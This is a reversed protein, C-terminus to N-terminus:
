SQFTLFIRHNETPKQLEEFVWELCKGINNKKLYCSTSISALKQKWKCTESLQSLVVPLAATKMDVSASKDM